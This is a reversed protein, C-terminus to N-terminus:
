RDTQCAWGDVCQVGPERGSTFGGPHALKRDVGSTARTASQQDVKVDVRSHNHPDHAM